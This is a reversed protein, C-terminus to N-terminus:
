EHIPIMMLSIKAEHIFSDQYRLDYVRVGYEREMMGEGTRGNSVGGFGWIGGVRIGVGNRDVLRLGV